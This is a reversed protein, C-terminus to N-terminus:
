LSSEGAEKVYVVVPPPPLPPASQAQEDMTTPESIASTNAEATNVEEETTGLTENSTSEFEGLLLNSLRSRLAELDSKENNARKLCEQIRELATTYSHEDIQGIEHEVELHVLAYNLEKIERNCREIERDIKEMLSKAENKLQNLAGEFSKQLEEYLDPSIKNKEVLEKL